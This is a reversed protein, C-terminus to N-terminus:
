RILVCRKTEAYTGANLRYLYVGSALNSGDLRVHHEGGEQSENVLTAIKQGLTNFVSLTVHARGPLAYRIMTSPNFPNPYNQLLAFQHPATEEEQPM